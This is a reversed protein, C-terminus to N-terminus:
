WAWMPGANRLPKDERTVAASIIRSLKRKREDAKKQELTKGEKLVVTLSSSPKTRVGMHGRGQSIMKRSRVARKNVWAEAVVLTPSDMKRHQVAKQKATTLLDKIRSGARKNSFQMQLIAYDIPKGAIQRGLKNLKRHSIVFPITSEKQFPTEINSVQVKPLTLPTTMGRQRPHWPAAKPGTVTPSDVTAPVQAFISSNEASPESASRESDPRGSSAGTEGKIKEPKAPQPSFTRSLWSMPNFSSEHRCSGPTGTLPLRSPGAVSYQIWRPSTSLSHYRGLM